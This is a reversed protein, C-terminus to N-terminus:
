TPVLLDIKNSLVRFINIKIENYKGLKPGFSHVCMGCIEIKDKGSAKMLTATTGTLQKVSYLERRGYEQTM